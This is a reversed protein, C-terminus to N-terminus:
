FYKIPEGFMKIDSNSEDFEDEQESYIISEEILKFPEIRTPLDKYLTLNSNYLVLLTNNTSNYIFDEAQTIFKIKSLNKQIRVLNNRNDLFILDEATNEFKVIKNDGLKYQNSVPSNDNNLDELYINLDPGIIKNNTLIYIKNNRISIPSSIDINPRLENWFEEITKSYVLGIENQFIELRDTYQILIFSNVLKYYAFKECFPVSNKYTLIKENEKIFLVTGDPFEFMNLVGPFILTKTKKASNLNFFQISEKNFILFEEKTLVVNQIPNASLLRLVKKVKFNIKNIEYKGREFVIIYNDGVRLENGRVNKSFIKQM